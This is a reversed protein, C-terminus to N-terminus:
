RDLLELGAPIESWLRAADVTAYGHAIRNRVAVVRALATALDSPIVGHAALLDLAESGSDPVGWGEDTCIHFAIDLAEQVSVLLSMSAADQLDVDALFTAEQEPRRRRLRAAHERLVVIKRLVLLADTM